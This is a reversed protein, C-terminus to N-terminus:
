RWLWVVVAVVALVVGLLGLAAGLAFHLGPSWGPPPLDEVPQGEDIVEVAPLSALSYETSGQGQRMIATEDFTVEEPRDLPQEAEGSAWARLAEEVEVASAPRRQPDKDMMREVLAVFGAPLGPVLKGLPEPEDRRHRQIKERSTGGPFPPQGSLAFYLTCGLSYIDTRRDVKAADLTQEPAIYDMTGVIYGQGGVVTVDLVPEGHTLALGLDLVKAHGRPTVLINSPKLDRHILGQNHAHELGSAVEALLRAARPLALPGEENVLRSLTRGPIYEMAIYPMGRFEGVEYTWALHPHAVRQSM